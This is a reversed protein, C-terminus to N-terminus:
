CLRPDQLGDIVRENKYLGAERIDNITSQLHEKFNSYMHYIVAKAVCNWLIQCSVTAVSRRCRLFMRLLLNQSRRLQSM